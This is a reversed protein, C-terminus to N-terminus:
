WNRGGVLTGAVPLFRELRVERWIGGRHYPDAQILTMAESQTDARVIILSGVIAGEADKLPGGILLRDLVEEVYALHDWLLERRRM